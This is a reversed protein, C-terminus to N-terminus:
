KMKAETSSKLDNSPDVTPKSDQIALKDQGEADQQLTPQDVAQRSAETEDGVAEVTTDSTETASESSVVQQVETEPSQSPSVEEAEQTTANDAKAEAPKEESIAPDPKSAVTTTEEEVPDNAKLESEPTSNETKEVPSEAVPKAKPKDYEQFLNVLDPIPIPKSMYGTCGAEMCRERDGVMAYATVAIIPTTFGKERLKQVVEIGTLEGALQIDMLVLDPEDNGFNNLADMGDIYNIVEHKGMRAVRKVLHVNAINDEVYVVRM